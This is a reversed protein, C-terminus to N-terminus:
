LVGWSLVAAGGGSLCRVVLRRSKDVLCLDDLLRFDKFAIDDGGFDDKAIRDGAAFVVEDNGGAAAFASVVGETAGPMGNGDRLTGEHRFISYYPHKLRSLLIFHRCRTYRCVKPDLIRLRRISKDSGQAISFRDRSGTRSM